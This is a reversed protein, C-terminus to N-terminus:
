HKAEPTHAPISTAPLSMSASTHAPANGGETPVGGPISTDPKAQVQQDARVKQLGKVIVRDNVELGSNVVRMSDIKRGITISRRVVKDEPTLMMVYKMNQDAAISEEPIIKAQYSQTYPIRVRVFMGPVMKSTTNEFTGRVKITGTTTSLSSDAYDLVGKHPFDKEDALQIECPIQKSRLSTEDAQPNGKRQYDRYRLLALEDVDFYVYIPQTKFVRTLKTGTNQGGMVINGRTFLTRDIRGSIPSAIVTYKVDLATRDADAKASKVNAASEREEAVIEDMQERSIAGTKVLNATRDLKLKALAYKSEWVAIKSLSQEHIANYAEPEITYLTQGETVMDGDKFDVTKIYGYVRSTIDVTESADLRGVYEDLDQTTIEGVVHYTVHPMPLQKKEAVAKQCGAMPLVMLLLLVSLFNCGFRDAHCMRSTMSNAIM